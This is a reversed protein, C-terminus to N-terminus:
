PVDPPDNASGESITVPDEHDENRPESAADSRVDQVPSPESDAAVAVGPLPEPPLGEDRRRGLVEPYAAASAYLNTWAQRLRIRAAALDADTQVFDRQAENLRVLSEKGAAYQARIIQRNERASDLNVRQLRVQEQANTLTVISQRVESAVALRIRELNALAERREAESRRLQSTRFGGTFLQWNVEIGVASSQDDNSYGMNGRNEYGYSGSLTVAPSFQAKAVGVYEVAAELAHKRQALDPRNRLGREVWEGEDPPTLNEETEEELPPLRVTDPLEADPLGMLEALVVRATNLVGRAVTVNAQATRVRVQFNLVDAQTAKGLDRNREAQTLQERSFQEDALAIRLQERGLLIQLYATDVAQVVLRQVDAMAMATARYNHKSALLRAERAFGDFLTWTVSMLSSHQSFSNTEGGATSTGLIQSSLLGFLSGVDIGQTTSFVQPLQQLFPRILPNRVAPTQFTRTSNHILSLVPYYAARAEAIRALSAELRAQAAHVDPNAQLAIERAEPLFLVEPVVPPGPGPSAVPEPVPFFRRRDEVPLRALAASHRKLIADISDHPPECGAVAMGLLVCGVVVVFETIRTNGTM